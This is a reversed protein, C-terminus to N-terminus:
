EDNEWDSMMEEEVEDMGEEENVDQHADGAIAANDAMNRPEAIIEDHEASDQPHTRDTERAQETSGLINLEFSMNEVDAQSQLGRDSQVFSPTQSQEGRTSRAAARINLLARSILVPTLVTALLSMLLLADRLLLAALSPNRTSLIDVVAPRHRDYLKYWLIALAMIAFLSGCAANVKDLKAIVDEVSSPSSSETCIEAGDLVFVSYSVRTFCVYVNTIVNFVALLALLIVLRRDGGTVAYIRLITATESIAGTLIRLLGSMVLSAMCFITGRVTVTSFNVLSLVSIIAYSLSLAQNAFFLWTSFSREAWFLQVQQGFTIAHDFLILAAGAVFAYSATFSNDLFTIAESAAVSM